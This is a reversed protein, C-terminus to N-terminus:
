CLQSLCDGASSDRVCLNKKMNKWAHLPQLLPDNTPKLPFPTTPPHTNKIVKKEEKLLEKRAELWEEKSVVAHGPGDDALKARKTPNECCDAMRKSRRRRQAAWSRRALWRSSFFRGRWVRLPFTARKDNKHNPPFRMCVSCYNKCYPIRLWPFGRDTCLLAITHSVCVFWSKIKGKGVGKAM